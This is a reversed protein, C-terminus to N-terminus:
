AAGLEGGLLHRLLDLEPSAQRLGIDALDQAALQALLGFGSGGSPVGPIPSTRAKQRSAPGSRQYVRSASNSARMRWRKRSRHRSATAPRSDEQSSLSSPVSASTM